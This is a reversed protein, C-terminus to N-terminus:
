GLVARVPIPACWVTGFECIFGILLLGMASLQGGGIMWIPTRNINTTRRVYNTIELASWNLLM